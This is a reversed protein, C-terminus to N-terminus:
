PWTSLSHLSTGCVRGIRHRELAGDVVLRPQLGLAIALRHHRAGEVDGLFEFPQVAVGRGMGGADDDAVPRQAFQHREIAIRFRQHRHGLEVHFPDLGRAQHLEVKEAQLREGHEIERHLSTRRRPTSISRACGAARRCWFRRSAPGRHSPRRTGPPFRLAHPARQDVHPRVTELVDDRQDRQVPRSRHGIDRGIARALLAELLGVIDM